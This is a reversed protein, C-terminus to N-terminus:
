IKDGEGCTGVHESVLSGGHSRKCKKFIDKRREGEWEEGNNSLFFKQTDPTPLSQVIKALM